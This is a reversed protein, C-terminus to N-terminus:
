DNTWDDDSTWDNTTLRMQANCAPPAVDRLVFQQRQAATVVFDFLHHGAENAVQFAFVASM